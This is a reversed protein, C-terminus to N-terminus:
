FLEIQDAYEQKLNSQSATETSPNSKSENMLKKSYNIHSLFDEIKQNILDPFDMQPCHSGHRILELQSGSILQHLLEQQALPIIKDEEGAIILTPTQIKDLWPISDYNEYEKVLQLLIAPDMEAVQRIYLEIDAQPTLHPNFGSLSVLTKSLPNLTQSKWFFRVWEPFKAHLRVLSSFIAEFANRRFLTELPRRPTGNALIMGAVREPYRKYFELVVNVGMSHGLFIADQINLEDLVIPIDKAINELTLSSLDKPVESNQHGRYDFWVARHSQKFHEIQYTWHLSSCVLGYCFILPKGEGEATYFIRTGDFSRIYGSAVPPPTEQAPSFSRTKQLLTSNKRAGIPRPKM